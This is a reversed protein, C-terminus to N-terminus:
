SAVCRNYAFAMLNNTYSWDSNTILLLTKGSEKMDLLSGPLEPDLEIYRFEMRGFEYLVVMANCNLVGMVVCRGPDEMIEEKLRSEVQLPV